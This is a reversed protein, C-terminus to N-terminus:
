FHLYVKDHLHFTNVSSSLTTVTLLLKDVLCRYTILSGMFTISEITAPVSNESPTTGLQIQEPRIYKSPLNKLSYSSIFDAPLINIKGLFAATFDNIPYKYIDEPSGIQQFAGNNMLAVRDSVALAEEQNHTVFVTTIKLTKQIKKLEACMEERLTVDLNSMPEDLLLVKPEVILSRILAVRQQQGGSLESIQKKKYNVLNVLELYDNVKEQITKLSFNRIKLGFAINEEVNLHPFLAYNQFVTGIDRQSPSLATINKGDLCITGQQPKLFGAILKLLTTKGCGSPGLLTFFEGQPIALHLNSLISTERYSFCLDTINLEGM